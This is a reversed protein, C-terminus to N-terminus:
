NKGQIQANMDQNLYESDYQREVKDAARSQRVRISIKGIAM